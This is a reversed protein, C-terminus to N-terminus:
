MDTAQGGNHGTARDNARLPSHSSERLISSPVMLDPQSLPRQASEHDGQGLSLDLVERRVKAEARRASEEDTTLGAGVYLAALHAAVEAPDAEIRACLQGFTSPEVSLTRMILLHLPNFWRAPLHPVRRMFIVRERYRQPLVDRRTRVAYTWLIQHLRFKLFAAPIDNAAPPRRVWQASALDVPRAPVLLGCRWHPFDIVALLRGEHMLHVVEGQFETLKSVLQEGLAFQSRLPRLWAEFRQLRQRLHQEDTVDVVEASVFGEPLPQAFALPRDVEARQLSLWEGSGAPHQIRLADRGLVQVAHGAILWADAHHPDGVEWQPWGPASRQTWECLRAIHDTGFGLLGLRLLPQEM